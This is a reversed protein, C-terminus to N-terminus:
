IFRSPIGNIKFGVYEAVLVIYPCEMIIKSQYLKIFSKKCGMHTIVYFILRM